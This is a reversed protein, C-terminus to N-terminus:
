FTRDGCWGVDPCLLHLFAMCRVLFLIRIAFQRIFRQVLGDVLPYNRLDLAADAAVAIIVVPLIVYEAAQYHQSRCMADATRSIYALMDYLLDMAGAMGNDIYVSLDAGTSEALERGHNALWVRDFLVLPTATAAFSVAYMAVGSFPSRDVQAEAAEVTETGNGAVAGRERKRRQLGLQEPAEGSFDLTTIDRKARSHTAPQARAASSQSSQMKEDPSTSATTDLLSVTESSTSSGIACVCRRIYMSMRARTVTARHTPPLLWLLLLLLPPPLPPPPLLPPPPPLPPPLLPPLLPPPPPLLRSLLTPLYAVARVVAASLWM